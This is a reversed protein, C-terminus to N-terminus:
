HTRRSSSPHTAPYFSLFGIPTYKDSVIARIEPAVIVGTEDYSMSSIEDMRPYKMLAACTFTLGRILRADCRSFLHKLVKRTKGWNGVDLM